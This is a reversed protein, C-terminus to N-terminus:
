SARGAIARRSRWAAHATRASTPSSDVSVSRLRTAERPALLPLVYTDLEEQGFTGARQYVIDGDRDIVVSYPLVGARNGWDRLLQLDRQPDAVLVPYNMDLTRAFNRLKRAEDLGIGVVQLGEHGHRAQFEVLHPVEYRCPACWTAWFNLLIVRNKWDALSRDHGELDPLLFAPIQSVNPGARAVACLTSAAQGTLVFVLLVLAAGIHRGPFHGAM